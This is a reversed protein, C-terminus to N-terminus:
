GKCAAGDHPIPCVNKLWQASLPMGVESESAMAAAGERLGERPLISCWVFFRGRLRARVGQAGRVVFGVVVGHQENEVVGAVPM